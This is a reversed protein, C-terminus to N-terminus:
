YIDGFRTKGTLSLKNSPAFGKGFGPTGASGPKSFPNFSSWDIPKRNPDSRYNEFSRMAFGGAASALPDQDYGSEVARGGYFSGSAGARANDGAIIDERERNALARLLADQYAASEKGLASGYAGGSVQLGRGAFQAEAKPMFRNFAGTYFNQVAEGYRARARSLAVIFDDIEKRRRAYEGEIDGKSFGTRSKSGGFFGMGAGAVGGVVAGWPNGGSVQFGLAAGSLAGSGAGEPNFAM